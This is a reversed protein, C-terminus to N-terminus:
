ARAAESKKKRRVWGIILLELALVGLGAKVMPAVPSPAERPKLYVNYWPTLARKNGRERNFGNWVSFAVPLFVGEEFTMSSGSRLKRKFIVSWQGEEYSAVMEPAKSESEVVSVSGRAEYLKSRQDALDAYWLEVPLETDGFLFYPKRIGEPSTKPFQLAVADSFESTSSAASADATDDDDGWFSDDGGADDAAEEEGWFDESSDEEAEEEDGWFGGGDEEEEDAVSAGEPQDEEWLPIALEPGNLGTTEAAMDNWTVQFAIEERSHIARVSISTAAPNFNRGPEIIQGVLPFMSEPADVFLDAGQALDLDGEVAVATVVNGYPAEAVNGALSTMYDVIAWIDEVPIAGHFGPMPTGNFGSSMTRFIDQRTGGGRFTWTQSLDAVRIYDGWDDVLTPASLGDGRGLNGHCRGCGTQEYVLKGKEAAEPSYPPPDPLPIPDLYAEPDKFDESFTKLYAVLSTLEDESFIPFGPMATYPLGIRISRKIDEDTPLSGTPTSRIKYKGGTFDRPAPNLYPTAIGQGDGEDGHCQSCYKDYLVKGEAVQAETGLDPVSGGQASAPVTTALFAGGLLVGGVLTKRFLTRRFLTKGASAASALASRQGSGLIRM